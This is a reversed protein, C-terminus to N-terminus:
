PACEFCSRAHEAPLCISGHNLWAIKFYMDSNRPLFWWWVFPWTFVELIQSTSPWCWSPYLWGPDKNEAANSHYRCTCHLSTLTDLTCWQHAFAIASESVDAPLMCKKGKIKSHYADKKMILQVGPSSGSNQFQCVMLIQCRFNALFCM